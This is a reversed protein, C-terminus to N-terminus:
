RASVSIIWCPRSCYRSSSVALLLSMRVFYRTLLVTQHDVSGARGRHVCALWPHGM